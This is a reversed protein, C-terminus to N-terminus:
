PVAPMAPPPTRSSGPVTKPTRPLSGSPTHFAYTIFLALTRHVETNYSSKVLGQLADMFFPLVNEPLSEAKLADLLRKVIGLFPDTM